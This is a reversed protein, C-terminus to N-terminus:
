NTLACAQYAHPRHNSDVAVWWAVNQLLFHRPCVRCLGQFAFAGLLVQFCIHSFLFAEDPTPHPCQGSCRSLQVCLTLAFQCPSLFFLGTALLCRSALAKLVPDFFSCNTEPNTDLLQYWLAVLFDLSCSRLTSALAGYASSPRPLSRFAVPLRLCANFRLYGFPSVRRSYHGTVRLQIFYTVLLAGPSSFCRLVRLFLFFSRNGLYRRAFPFSGLGPLKSDPTSPRCFAGYIRPSPTLFRRWLPHCGRVQFSRFALRYWLVAPCSFDPPFCPPGGGM